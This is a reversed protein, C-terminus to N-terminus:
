KEVEENEWKQRDEALQREAIRRIEALADKLIDAIVFAPLEATNVMKILDQTFEERAVTIPKDM